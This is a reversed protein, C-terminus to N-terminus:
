GHHRLYENARLITVVAPADHIVGTVAHRVAQELPMKVRTINETSEQETDGFRIDKVMFLFQPSYILGTMQNVLGLDIVEGSTIGLEERLEREAAQRPTEDEDIGGGALELSDTGLGYQFGQALHVDRNEDIPLISVGRGIEVWEYVGPKGDPRIVKDHHVRLGYKGEWTRRSNIKWDGRKRAAEELQVETWNMENNKNAM